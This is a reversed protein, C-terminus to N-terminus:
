GAPASLEITCRLRTNGSTRGRAVLLPAAVKHHYGRSVWGQIPDESSPLVALELSPDVRLTVRQAGVRIVCRQGVPPELECHEALHFHLAVQHAGESVIEDEIALTRTAADLQLTRRHTAPAPLRMYGDHEGRVRVSGPS